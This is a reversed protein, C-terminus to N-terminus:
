NTFFDDVDKDEGYGLTSIHDAAEILPAVDSPVTPRLLAIGARIGVQKIQQMIPLLDEKVEAHFTILNPKLAILQQYYLSPQSVMAHIDITWGQPWWIQDPGLLEVPAFVGDSIDIHIHNAFLHIRELTAKYDDPTSVTATPVIVAPM